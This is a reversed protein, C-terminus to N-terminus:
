VGSIKALNLWFSISEAKKRQTTGQIVWNILHLLDKKCLIQYNLMTMPRPQYIELSRKLRNKRLSVNLYLGKEKDTWGNIKACVDFHAKYDTWHVTGNVTAPKIKVYSKDQVSPTSTVLGFKSDNTIPQMEGVSQTDAEVISGEDHRVARTNHWGNQSSM